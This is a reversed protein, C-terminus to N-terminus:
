KMLVRLHSEVSAALGDLGYGGELVSVLRGRCQEDAIRKVIRTLEAYSEATLKMGGLPDDRHADFGASVLVFDPRFRRAAPVLQEEFARRYEREGSGAPLPVNLKTGAAKGEGREEASGTGPYFPSQHVSFYFVTPDSNFAAQTGNGHHVDWDVILVRQLVHQKQAYRAAIAVNNLLCFGMAQDKTAHHGPPRVACFANRVKGEMVADVAALVGGAAEVAAQYSDKSVPTDRSGAHASEESAKRIAAVHQPTHVATIWEEAAARPRIAVLEDSLGSKKLRAIISTLREPREPHGPGTKHRLYVEGYVFGTKVAPSKDHGMKKREEATRPSETASREAAPSAGRPPGALGCYWPVGGLAHKEPLRVDEKRFRAFDNPRSRGAVSDGGVTGSPPAKRVCRFGIADRAFCSDQFGPTEGVRHAARCGEPSSNWAGGRLVYQEGQKPGRPNKDPSRPYYNAAYVDNCWEAVNGHMDFLGWANPKKQMVPHTKKGANEACWAHEKLAAAGGDFSYDGETGARCAYEWEAETPLRYGDAAFNCEATEEDYCPALGEARSRRNCFMAADAWSIMEVPRDPGKFKSGNALELRACQGQRVECRDILFSDVRIEHVPRQDPQGGASGMRFRGAPILVMEDGGATTLIPPADAAPAADGAPRCSATALAIALLLYRATPAIGCGDGRARKRSLPLPHPRDQRTATGHM